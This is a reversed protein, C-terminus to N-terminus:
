ETEPQALGILGAPALVQRALPISLRRRREMADRDLADVASMVAAHSREIRAALWDILDPRADLGRREFQHRLLAAVLADDPAGISAKAGAALRSRLDPLAVTWDPSAVLLLPRGDAEAGNWAHFLTAEHVRNADDIVAGGSRAAFIRALLSRGSRPPGVLLATRRPWAAWADLLQAAQANSTSVIFADDGSAPRGLPLALQSM